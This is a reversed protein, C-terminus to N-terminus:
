SSQPTNEIANLLMEFLEAQKDSVVYCECLPCKEGV